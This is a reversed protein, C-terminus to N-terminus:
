AQKLIFWDVGNSLIKEKFSHVLKHGRETPEKHELLELPKNINTEMSKLQWLWQVSQM